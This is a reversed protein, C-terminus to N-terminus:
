KVESDIYLGQNSKKLEVIDEAMVYNGLLGLYKLKTLKKIRGKVCVAKLRM